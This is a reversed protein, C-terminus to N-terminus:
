EVSRVRDRIEEGSKVGGCGAGVVASLQKQSRLEGLLSQVWTM